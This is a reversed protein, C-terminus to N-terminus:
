DQDTDLLSNLLDYKTPGTSAGHRSLLDDDGVRRPALALGVDVVSQFRSM